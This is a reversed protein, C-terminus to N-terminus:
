YRSTQQTGRPIHLHFRPERVRGVRNSRRLDVGGRNQQRYTYSDTVSCSDKPHTTIIITEKGFFFRKRRPYRPDQFPIPGEEDDSDNATELFEEWKPTPLPTDALKLEPFGEVKVVQPGRPPGNLTVWILVMLTIVM